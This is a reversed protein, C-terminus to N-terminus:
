LVREVRVLVVERGDGDVAHVAEAYLAGLEGSAAYYDLVTLGATDWDFTPQSRTTYASAGFPSDAGEPLTVEALVTIDAATEAYSSSEVQSGAPFPIATLSQVQLLSLGDCAAAGGCVSSGPQAEVPTVSSYLGVIASVVIGILLGVGVLAGVVVLVRPRPQEVEEASDFIDLDSDDAM